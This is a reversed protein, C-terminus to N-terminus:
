KRRVRKLSFFRGSFPSSYYGQSQSTSHNSNMLTSRSLESLSSVEDDTIIDYEDMGRGPLAVTESISLQSMTRRVLADTFYKCELFNRMELQNVVSERWKKSPVRDRKGARNSMRSRACGPSYSGESETLKGETLTRQRKFYTTALHAISNSRARTGEETQETTGNNSTKQNRIALVLESREIPDVEMNILANNSASEALPRFETYKNLFDALERNIRVRARYRQTNSQLQLFRKTQVDNRQQLQWVINERWWCSGAGNSAARQLAAPRVPSSSGSEDPELLKCSCRTNPTPQIDISVSSVIPTEMSADFDHSTKQQLPTSHALQGAFFEKIIDYDAAFEQKPKIAQAESLCKPCHCRDVEDDGYYGSNVVEESYLGSESSSVYTHSGRRSSQSSRSSGRSWRRRSSRTSSRSGTSSTSDGWSSDINKLVHLYSNVVYMAASEEMEKILFDIPKEPRKFVLKAILDELLQLSETEELYKTAKVQPEEIDSEPLNDVIISQKLENLFDKGIKKCENYSYQEDQEVTKFFDDESPTDDLEAM